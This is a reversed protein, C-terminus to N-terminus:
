RQARRSRSSMLPSTYGTTRASRSASSSTPSTMPPLCCTPASPFARERSTSRAERAVDTGPRFWRAEEFERYNPLYSKPVVALVRGSQLAAAVNYLGSGVRLPLGVVALPALTRGQEALWYLSELCAELLHQDLLLDRATYCSLGLEPSIVLSSGAQDAERWLTLTAERNKRFDTVGCAPVGASVRVFGRM